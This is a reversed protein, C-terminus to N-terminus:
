AQAEALLVLLETLLETGDSSSSNLKYATEAALRVSKKCVPLPLKAAATYVAKAQFDYRFEFIRTYEALNIGADRMLKAAMLQRLKASIAALIVHPAVEMYTLDALKGLAKDWNGAVVADTLEYTAAEPVPTVVADIDARTIVPGASYACLKEIEGNMTTMLGDTLYALYDADARSIQRGGAECHKSIWRAISGGEQRNFQVETILERLRKNGKLRQDLKFEEASAPLIFVVTMYEPVDSLAEVLATRMAEDTKDFSFDDIEVLMYDSFVPMADVAEFLEEATLTRGDLRRDNFEETGKAILGRLSALSSGLLYREKGLFAYVREPAKAKIARRLADYAGNDKDKAM